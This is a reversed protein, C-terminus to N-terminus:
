NRELFTVYDLARQLTMFSLSNPIAEHFLDYNTGFEESDNRIIITNGNQYVIKHTAKM